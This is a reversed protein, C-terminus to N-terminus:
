RTSRAEGTGDEELAVLRVEGPPSHDPGIARQGLSVTLTLTQDGLAHGEAAIADVHGVGSNWVRILNTGSGVSSTPLGLNTAM